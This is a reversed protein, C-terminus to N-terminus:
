DATDTESEFTHVQVRCKLARLERAQNEAEEEVLFWYSSLVSNDTLMITRKRKGITSMPVFAMMERNWVLGGPSYIMWFRAPLVEPTLQGETEREV